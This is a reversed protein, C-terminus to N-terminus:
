KSHEYRIYAALAKMEESDAPLPKGKSKETIHKNIIAPLSGGIKALSSKKIAKDQQHCLICAYKVGLGEKKNFLERGKAILEPTAADQGAFTFPAFSFILLFSFLFAVRVRGEGPCPSPLGVVKLHHSLPSPCINNQNQKM